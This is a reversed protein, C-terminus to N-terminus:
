RPLATRAGAVEARKAAWLALEALAGEAASGPEASYTIVTLGDDAPLEFAEYALTLEGVLPHRMRKTGTRHFRVDHRAWEVRFEESRMSLEGILNSLARDYPNRGAEGRLVAVADHATTDWDAYFTRARPNLFCFRATNVPRAPDAYADSYLAEALANAHLIDFRGNRVFAPVDVLADIIRRVSPRVSPAVKRPRAQATDNVARVLDVLHDHEAEDLQLARSVSEVVEDSVGRANGRELRVYYEVSIGALLAVEERRLGAVRRQRGYAPLGAQGPSLRARRTTLFDRIENANSVRPVNGGPRATQCASAIGRYSTNEGDLHCRVLIIAMFQLQRAGIASPADADRERTTFTTWWRDNRERGACADSTM